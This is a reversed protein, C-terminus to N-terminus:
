DNKAKTGKNWEAWADKVWKLGKSMVRVTPGRAGCELCEIFGYREAGNEEENPSMCDEPAKCFPCGEYVPKLTAPNTM